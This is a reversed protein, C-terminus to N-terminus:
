LIMHVEHLSAQGSQCGTNFKEKTLKYHIEGYGLM